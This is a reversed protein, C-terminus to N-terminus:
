VCLDHDMDLVPAPPPPHTLYPHFLWAYERARHQTFMQTKGTMEGSLQRMLKIECSEANPTFNSGARGRARCSHWKTLRCLCIEYSSDNLM